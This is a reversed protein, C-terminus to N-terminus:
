PLALSQLALASSFARSSWWIKDASVGSIFLSDKSSVYAVDGQSTVGGALSHSLDKIILDVDLRSSKRENPQFLKKLSIIVEAIETFNQENRNLIVKAERVALEKALENSSELCSIGFQNARAYAILFQSVREYYVACASTKNQLLAFHILQCAGEMGDRTKDPIEGRNKAYRGLAALVNLNVVCDVDNPGWIIRSGQVNEPEAWTLFGGSNVSKWRDDPIAQVTRQTDRYNGATHVFNTVFEDQVGAALFWNAAMASNDLDNPLNWQNFPPDADLTRAKRGNALEWAPLHAITGEPERTEITDDLYHIISEEVNEIIEQHGPLVMHRSVEDLILLTTLPLFADTVENNFQQSTVEVPWAGLYRSKSHAVIQSVRLFNYLRDKVASENVVWSKPM